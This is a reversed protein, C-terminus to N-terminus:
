FVYVNSVSLNQMGTHWGDATHTCDKFLNLTRCTQFRKRLILKAASSYSIFFFICTFFMLSFLMVIHHFQKGEIRRAIAHFYFIVIIWKTTGWPRWLMTFDFLVSINQRQQQLPSKMLWPNYAMVDRNLVSYSTTWNGIIKIAFYDMLTQCAPSYRENREGRGAIATRALLHLPFPKKRCCHLLVSTESFLVNCSGIM